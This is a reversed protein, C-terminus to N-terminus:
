ISQQAPCMNYHMLGGSRKIRCACGNARAFTNMKCVGRYTYRPRYPNEPIAVAAGNSRGIMYISCRTSIRYLQHDYIGEPTRIGHGAAIINCYVWCGHRGEKHIIRKRYARWEIHYEIVCSGPSRRIVPYKAIASRREGGRWTIHVDPRAIIRHLQQRGIRIGTCVSRYPMDVQKPIRTCEGVARYCTARRHTHMKSRRYATYGAEGPIETIANGRCRRKNIGYRM